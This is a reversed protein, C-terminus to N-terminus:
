VRWGFVSFMGTIDSRSAALGVTSPFATAAAHMRMQWTTPSSPRVTGFLYTNPAASASWGGNMHCAIVGDLNFASAPINGIGNSDTGMAAMLQVFTAEWRNAPVAGIPAPYTFAAVRRIYMRGDDITVIREGDGPAPLNLKVAAYNAASGNAFLRRDAIVGATMQAIVLEWTAATQTPAVAADRYLLEAHNDAPTFRVVLLGNASAPITAGATLEAYHGDLWCSGAAVQIAPGAVLTPALAAAGGGVGLLSPDVGSPAWMRGMKRWRAESSVSGDGGPGAGDTPWVALDAM